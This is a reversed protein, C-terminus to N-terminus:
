GREIYTSLGGDCMPVTVWIEGARIGTQGKEGNYPCMSASFLFCCASYIVLGGMDHRTATAERLHRWIGEEEERCWYDARQWITAASKGESFADAPRDRQWGKVGMDWGMWGYIGKKM